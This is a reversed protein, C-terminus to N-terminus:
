EDDSSDPDAIVEPLKHLSLNEINITDVKFVIHIQADKKKRATDFISRIQSAKKDMGNSSGLLVALAAVVIDGQQTNHLHDCLQSLIDGKTISELVSNRAALALELAIIASRFLNNTRESNGGQTSTVTAM